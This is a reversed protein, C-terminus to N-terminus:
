EEKEEVDMLDAFWQFAKARLDDLSRAELATEREWDGAFIFAESTGDEEFHFLLDLGNIRWIEEPCGCEESPVRALMTVPATGAVAPPEGLRLDGLLQSGAASVYPQGTFKTM